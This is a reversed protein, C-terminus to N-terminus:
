KGPTQIQASATLGPRLPLTNADVDIIIPVSTVGSVTSALWGVRTVKGTITKDKFADPTISVSQGIQIQAFLAQDISGQLQLHSLDALLLVPSSPGVSEGVHPILSIVIGDFPATLTANTVQQQALALAAQAQDVAAQAAAINDSNPQLRSLGAQAQQVQGWAGALEAATPHTLANNYAAIAANYNNTATQLQLSQPLMGSYPNTPGGARDYAAQAQDLAAKANAVQTRLPALDNASPGGRVKEYNKLTADVAAQAAATDADTAPSKIQSLRAQAGALAAQAQQVSLQLETTDLVALTDGKKVTAGEQVRLDIVRGSGKFMLTAQTPAVFAGFIQITNAPAVQNAPVAQPQSASSTSAPSAAVRAPPNLTLIGAAVLVLAALVAFLTRPKLM